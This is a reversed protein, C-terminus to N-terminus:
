RVDDKGREAFFTDVGASGNGVGLREFDIGFNQGFIGTVAVCAVPAVGDFEGNFVRIGKGDEVGIKDVEVSLGRSVIVAEEKGGGVGGCKGEDGGSAADGSFEIEPVGPLEM